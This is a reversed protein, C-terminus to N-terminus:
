GDRDVPEDAAQLAVSFTSGEGVASEVWIDGRHREIIRQCIALGIGTGAYENRPHLREFVEFVRGHLEPEIGIGNDTVSIVWETDRHTAAVRVVPSEESYEIANELLNYFLRHLQHRDGEVTPLSEITVDADAAVIHDNLDTVVDELVNELDVPEFPNGHTKIRSYALLGDIMDRMRDAGDTAFELFELGNEDLSEAYRQELLQLYSSVMRLPEQIDHSAAYAFQELRRTELQLEDIYERRELHFKVLTVLTDILEQEETLFPTTEGNVAGNPLRATVTIPTENATETRATISPGDASFADTTAEQTGIRVRLATQDPHRFADPLTELLEELLASISKDGPELLSTALQIATYEKEREELERKRRDALEKLETIDTATVVVQEPDSNSDSIPTATISLWRKGGGPEEISVERDYVPEGTQFVHSAPREALPIPSGTEDYLQRLTPDITPNDDVPLSLLQAMRENARSTTGDRNVVTIGVSSTELIREVLDRERQLRQERERRDTMDRTIKAFGELDGDADRIAAITVNAWFTSGDSRVRWGEDEVVGNRRARELNEQPVHADREDPTYFISFHKGLVERPDYGKIQSAGSNWSAVNGDPDLRFIAYEDVADVLSRFQAESAVRANEIRKRDTIDYYLEIRGGEYPGSEIPKSRHELWREERDPGSTVHCEFRTPARNPEYTAFVTEMFTEPDELRDAITEEILTRKDRGIVDARDIGFYSEISEDIWAVSFSADLVFVGVDAEDIVSSLPAAHEPSWDDAAPQTHSEAERVVGAVQTSEGACDVTRLHLECSISTDDASKVTM